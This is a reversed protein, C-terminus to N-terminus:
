KGFLNRRKLDGISNILTTLLFIKKITEVYLFNIETRGSRANRVVRSVFLEKNSRTFHHYYKIDLYPKLTYKGQGVGCM